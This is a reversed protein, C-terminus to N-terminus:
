LDNWVDDESNNWIQDMVPIQAKKLEDTLTDQLGHKM